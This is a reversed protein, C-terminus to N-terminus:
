PCKTISKIWDSVLLLGTKDLVSTAIQPMRRVEDLTAMREYVLSWEPHAPAILKAMAEPVVPAPGKIPAANCAMRDKLLTDFRLDLGQFNGGPRHCIACNAQLYSRTRIENTAPDSVNGTIGVTPDPYAPKRKVQADFLGIHELTDLQNATMGSPYKFNINLNRVDPGLAYGVADNHCQACDTESPFYWSQMKGANMVPKTVGAEPILTADTHDANWEYSYGVWGNAPDDSFHVWLRTEFVKSDFLFNKVLVSGIPFLFHGEDYPTGGNDLTKCTDPERDCDKVHVFKGDPLAMFREKTAGDSWLPSAVTYPVLSAAPKTHDVPDVCGTQSLLPYPKLQSPPPKCTQVTARAMLGFPGPGALVYGDPGADAPASVDASGADSAPKAVDPPSGGADVVPLPTASDVPGPPPMIGTDPTVVPPNPHHAPSTSQCGAVTSLVLAVVCPLSSARSRNMIPEVM